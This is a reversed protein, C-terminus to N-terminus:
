SLLGDRPSPSTYLLCSVDQFVMIYEAETYRSYLQMFFNFNGPGGPEINYPTRNLLVPHAVSNNKPIYISTFLKVSDRMTIYVEQKDYKQKLDEISQSYSSSSIVMMLILVAPYFSYFPKSKM